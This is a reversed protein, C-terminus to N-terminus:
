NRTKKLDSSTNQTTMLSFLDDSSKDSTTSQGRDTSSTKKKGKCACVIELQVKHTSAKLAAPEKNSDAIDDDFELDHFNISHKETSQSETALQKGKKIRYGVIKTKTSDM